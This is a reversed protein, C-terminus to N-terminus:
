YMNVYLALLAMLSISNKQYKRLNKYRLRTINKQTEFDSLLDLAILDHINYSSLDRNRWTM